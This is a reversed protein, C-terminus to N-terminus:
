VLAWIDIAIRQSSIVGLTDPPKAITWGFETSLMFATSPNGRSSKLASATRDCIESACFIALPLPLSCSIASAFISSSTLKAGVLCIEKCRSIQMNPKPSSALQESTVLGYFDYHIYILANSSTDHVSFLSKVSSM